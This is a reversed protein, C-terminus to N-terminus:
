QMGLSQFNSRLDDFATSSDFVVFSAGWSTITNPNEAADTWTVGEDTFFGRVWLGRPGFLSSVYFINIYNPEGTTTVNPADLLQVFDYFNGLGPPIGDNVAADMIDSYGGVNIIGAQFTLNLTPQDLRSNSFAQNSITKRMPWEHHVAGGAIKEIVTRTGIRWQCEHPNVWFSIYGDLESFNSTNGSQDSRGILWRMAAAADPHRHSMSPM